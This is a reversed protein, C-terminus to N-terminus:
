AEHHRKIGIAPDSNIRQEELACSLVHRLVPLCWNAMNPAGALQRKVLAAGKPRVRHRPFGSLMPKLHQAAVRYQALTTPALRPKLPALAKDIPEAM